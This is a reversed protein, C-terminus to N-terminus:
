FLDIPEPKGHKEMNNLPDTCTPNEVAQSGSGNKPIRLRWTKKKNNRPIM